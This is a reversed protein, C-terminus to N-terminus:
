RIREELIRIMYGIILLNPLKNLLTETIQAPEITEEAFQQAYNSFFELLEYSVNRALMGNIEGVELDKWLDTFEIALERGNMGM